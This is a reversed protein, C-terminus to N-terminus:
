RLGTLGARVKPGVAKYIELIVHYAQNRIDGNSHKYGYLAYELCGEYNINHKNIPYNELV